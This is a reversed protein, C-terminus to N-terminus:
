HWCEPLTGQKGESALTPSPLTPISKAQMRNVLRRLDELLRAVGRSFGLGPVGLISRSPFM